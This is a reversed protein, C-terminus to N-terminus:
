IPYFFYSGLSNWENQFSKLWNENWKIKEKCSIQSLSIQFEVFFRKNIKRYFCQLICEIFYFFKSNIAIFSTHNIYVIQHINITISTLYRVITMNHTTVLVNLKQWERNIFWLWLQEYIQCAYLDSISYFHPNLYVDDGAFPFTFNHEYM